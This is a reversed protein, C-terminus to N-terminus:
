RREGLEEVGLAERAQSEGRGLEADALVAAQADGAVELDVALGALDLRAAAEGL